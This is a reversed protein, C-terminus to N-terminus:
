KDFLTALVYGAYQQIDENLSNYAQAAPENEPVHVDLETRALVFCYLGM